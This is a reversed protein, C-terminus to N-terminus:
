ITFTTGLQIGNLNYKNINWWVRLKKYIDNLKESVTGIYIGDSNLYKIKSINIEM